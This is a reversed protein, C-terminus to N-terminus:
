SRNHANLHKCTKRFRFAPCSCTVALDSDDLVLTYQNQNSGQVIVTKAAKPTDQKIVRVERAYIRTVEGADDWKKPVDFAWPWDPYPSIRKSTHEDLPSAWVDKLEFDVTRTFVVERGEGHFDVLFVPQGKEIRYPM